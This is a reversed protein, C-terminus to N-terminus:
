CLQLYSAFSSLVQWMYANQLVSLAMTQGNLLDLFEKVEAQIWLMGLKGQSTLAGDSNRKIGQLKEELLVM